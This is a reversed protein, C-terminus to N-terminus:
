KSYQSPSVIPLLLWRTNPDSGVRSFAKAEAETVFPGYAPSFCGLGITHIPQEGDFDPLATALDVGVQANLKARAKWEVEAKSRGVIYHPKAFLLKSVVSRWVYPRANDKARTDIIWVKSRHNAVWWRYVQVDKVYDPVLLKILRLDVHGRLSVVRFESVFTGSVNKTTIPIITENTIQHNIGGPSSLSIKNKGVRTVRACRAGTTVGNANPVNRFKSNTYSSDVIRLIDGVQLKAAFEAFSIPNNM